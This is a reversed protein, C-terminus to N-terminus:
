PQSHRVETSINKQPCKLIKQENSYARRHMSWKNIKSLNEDVITKGLYDLFIWNMENKGNKQVIKM